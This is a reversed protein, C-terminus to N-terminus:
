VERIQFFSGGIWVLRKATREKLIHETSIERFMIKHIFSIQLLVSNKLFFIIGGATEATEASVATCTNSSYDRDM